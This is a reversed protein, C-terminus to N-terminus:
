YWIAYDGYRKTSAELLADLRDQDLEGQVLVAIRDGLTCTNADVSHVARASNLMFARSDQPFRAYIRKDMHFYQNFNVRTPVGDKDAGNSDFKDYRERGKYFHLGEVNKNALYFRMGALGDSDAHPLVTQHGNQALLIITSVKRFPYSMAYAFVEPFAKALPTLDGSVSRMLWPYELGTLREYREKWYTGMKQDQSMWRILQEVDVSPPQPMDLPTFILDDFRRFRTAPIFPSQSL